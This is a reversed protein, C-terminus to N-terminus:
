AVAGTVAALWAKLWVAGVLEFVTFVLAIAFVPWTDRITAARREFPPLLAVIVANVVSFTLLITLASLIPYAVGLYAGAGISLAFVLVMSAVYWGADTGRPLVRTAGPRTWLQGNLLPLTFAALAYGTMLGTLMRLENSTERIGAYSTLGDIGMAVVFLGLVISTFVPPLESSRRGRDLVWLTLLAAAFGLYIGTDRACVPLQVGGGFFSREPLQHCLGYGLLHLLEELM